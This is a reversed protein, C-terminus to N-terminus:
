SERKKDRFQYINLSVSLRYPTSIYLLKLLNIKESHTM